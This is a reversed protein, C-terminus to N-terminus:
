VLTTQLPYASHSNCKEDKICGSKNINGDRKIESLTPFSHPSGITEMATTGDINYQLYAFSADFEPCL